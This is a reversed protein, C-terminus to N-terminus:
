DRSHSGGDPVVPAHELTHFFAGLPGPLMRQGGPRTTRWRCANGASSRRVPQLIWPARGRQPPPSPWRRAVAPRDSPLAERHAAHSPVEIAIVYKAVDERGDTGFAARFLADTYVCEGSPSYGIVVVLDNLRMGLDPFWNM